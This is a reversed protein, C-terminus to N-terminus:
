MLGIDGTEGEMVMEDDELGADGKFDVDLSEPRTQLASSAAVTNVSSAEIV